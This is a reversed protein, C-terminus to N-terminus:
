KPIKIRFCVGNDINKAEISGHLHKNVITKGMYLGIGTGEEEKKTSFYPEFIHPLVSQPIGGANDLINIYVDKTDEQIQILKIFINALNWVM